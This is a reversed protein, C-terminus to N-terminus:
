ILLSQMVLMATHLDKSKILRDAAHLIGGAVVHMGSMHAYRYTYLYAVIYKRMLVVVVAGHVSQRPRTM